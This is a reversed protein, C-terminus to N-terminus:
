MLKASRGNNPYSLLFFPEFPLPNLLKGNLWLVLSIEISGSKLRQLWNSEMRTAFSSVGLYSKQVLAGYDDQTEVRWEKHSFAEDITRPECDLLEVVLAKPKFIGATSRTIM